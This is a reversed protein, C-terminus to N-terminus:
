GWLGQGRQWQSIMKGTVDWNAVLDELTVSPDFAHVPLMDHDASFKATRVDLVKGTVPCTIQYGVIERKLTQVIRNHLTTTM